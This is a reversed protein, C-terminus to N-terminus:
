NEEAHTKRAWVAMNISALGAMVNLVHQNDMKEIYTENDFVLVREVCTHGDRYYILPPNIPQRM